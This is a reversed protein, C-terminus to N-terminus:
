VQTLVGIFDRRWERSVRMPVATSSYGAESQRSCVMGLLAFCFLSSLVVFPRDSRRFSVSSLLHRRRVGEEERQKGYM